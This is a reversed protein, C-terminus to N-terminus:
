TLHDISSFDTETFTKFNNYFSKDRNAPDSDYQCPLGRGNLRLPEGPAFGESEIDVMTFGLPDVPPQLAQLDDGTWTSGDSKFQSAFVRMRQGHDLESHIWTRKDEVLVVGVRFYLKGDKWREETVPLGFRLTREAFTHTARVGDIDTQTLTVEASNINNIYTELNSPYDRYWKWVTAIRNYTPREAFLPDGASNVIPGKHGALWSPQNPTSSSDHFPGVTTSLYEADRVPETTEQYELEVVRAAETPDFTPVGGATRMFAQGADNSWQTTVTWKKATDSLGTRKPTRKLCYIPVVGGLLVVTGVAPLGVAQLVQFSSDERETTLVQYSRTMDYRIFGSAISENVNEDILTAAGVSM